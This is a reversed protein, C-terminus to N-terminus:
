GDRPGCDHCECTVAHQLPYPNVRTPRSITKWTWGNYFWSWTRVKWRAGENLWDWALISREIGRDMYSLRVKPPTPAVDAMVGGPGERGATTREVLELVQAPDRM